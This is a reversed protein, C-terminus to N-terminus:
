VELFWEKREKTREQGREKRKHFVHRNSALKLISNKDSFIHLLLMLLLSVFLFLVDEDGEDNVDGSMAKWVRARFTKTFTM